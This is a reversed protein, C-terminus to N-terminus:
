AAKLARFTTGHTRQGAVPIVACLKYGLGLHTHVASWSPPSKSCVQSTLLYSTMWLVPFIYRIVVGGSFSRAVAMPLMCFFQSFRLHLESSIIASSCACVSLCVREDCYEAGTNPASYCCVVSQESQSPRPWVVSDSLFCIQPSIAVATLVLRIKRDM